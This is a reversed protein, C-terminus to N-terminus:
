GGLREIVTVNALGGGECMTQLGYRVGHRRMAHVLTAMIKAGSAGLPHGLAIAGGHVNMRERNAGLAKAWALPISAFAENVEYLGIEDISMGTKALARQTAAIPTELMIVPDGGIVSMHHVRAIPKAGLAKLGDENAILLGASGDCFQSATAPTLRGGEQILKVGAMAELSAGFRIGEDVVHDQPGNPGMFPVPVIEDRFAGEKTAAAARQQSLLGFRDLEDKELGYKRAVMEAGHFQNFDIGPFREELRRGKYHGLGNKQPLSLPMGMPVRSMSEIGGAIVIDMSGSMVAQAAFHVAQQSSGCQRDLTVGPVTDPLKSSLAINRAVNTSQEGAQSVCGFIVDEVRTPDVSNRDILANVVLAGLDAPHWEKLGGGRRGGATRVADVIYATKM